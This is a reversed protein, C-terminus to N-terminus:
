FNNILVGVQNLKEKIIQGWLKYGDSNLHLKDEIFYNEIPLGSENLYFDRTDIFYSNQKKKIYQKILKNAEAIQPWVNWRKATPTTEIVLVPIKKGLKNRIKKHVFKFLRKIEKPSLDKHNPRLSYGRIDNAVFLLIANAKDHGEVLREIFHILDYYHAGGYGRLIPQYPKLDDVATDWRRISSSGIFLVYDELIKYEKKSELLQIDKEFYKNHEIYKKQVSCNFLLSALLILYLKKIDIKKLYIFIQVIM